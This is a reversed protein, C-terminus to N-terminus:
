ETHLANDLSFITNAISQSKGKFSHGFVFCPIIQLLRKYRSVYYHLEFMPTSVINCLEGFPASGHAYQIFGGFLLYSIEQALTPQGMVRHPKKVGRPFQTNFFRIDEVLRGDCLREPDGM